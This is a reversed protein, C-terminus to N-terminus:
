DRARPVPENAVISVLDTLKENLEALQAAIEALWIPEWETCNQADKRIEDATM